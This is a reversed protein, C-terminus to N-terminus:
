SVDKSGNKVGLKKQLAKILKDGIFEGKFFDVKVAISIKDALQRAAKGKASSFAVLPHNLIIGHKPSKAGTKIHRFLAKEAGLIQVTSAPLTALRQFSGALAILKAGIGATAVERINPCNEKMMSDIYKEQKERLSNMSLIEEALNRIQVLDSEELDAGMSDESSISLEDLFEKKSKKTVAEAFKVNDEIKRSIEPCNLEFWERLRRSLVNICKNLEDVSNSADILLNDFKVSERIKRKALGIEADFYEQPNQSFLSLIEGIKSVDEIQKVSENKRNLFVADPHKKLLKKEEELIEGKELLLCKDAFDKGFPMSEVIGKEILHAGKCNSYIAKM